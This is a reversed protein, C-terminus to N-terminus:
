HQNVQHPHLHLNAQHPTPKDTVRPTGGTVKPKPKPKDTVRPTGGTVKPKSPKLQAVKSPQSVTEKSGVGLGRYPKSTPPDDIKIKVPEITQPSVIAKSKAARNRQATMMAERGRAPADARIQKLLAEGRRTITRDYGASM